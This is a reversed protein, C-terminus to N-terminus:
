PDLTIGYKDALAQVRDNVKTVDYDAQEFRIEFFKHSGFNQLSSNSALRLSKMWPGLSDDIRDPPIITRRTASNIWVSAQSHATMHVAFLIPFNNVGYNFEGSSASNLAARINPTNNNRWVWWWGDDGAVSRSFWPQVATGNSGFGNQVVYFTLPFSYAAGWSDTDMHARSSRFEITKGADNVAVYPATDPSPSKVPAKVLSEEEPNMSTIGGNSIRQSDGILAWVTEGVHTELRMKDAVVEALVENGKWSAHVKDNLLWWDAGDRRKDWETGADLFYVNEYESAVDEMAAGYRDWRIGQDERDERRYSHVFLHMSDNPLANVADRLNQRYTATSRQEWYDNSGVMHIILHPKWNNLINRRATPLYNGANTGGMGVNLFHFGKSTPPPEYGTTRMIMAHADAGPVHRVVRATFVHAYSEYRPTGFGQTTSSGAFAIRVPSTRAERMFDLPIGRVREWVLQQGYYLADADRAGDTVMEIRDPTFANSPLPDLAAVNTATWKGSVNQAAGSSVGFTVVDGASLDLVVELISPNGVQDGRQGNITAYLVYYEGYAEHRVTYTGDEEVTWSDLAGTSYPVPGWEGSASM